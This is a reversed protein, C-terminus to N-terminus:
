ATECASRAHDLRSRALRSAAQGQYPQHGRQRTSGAAVREVVAADLKGRAAQDLGTWAEDLVLPAPSPLPAQAIAMKQCMGNSMSRLSQDAYGEAGLRELWEEVRRRGTGGPV